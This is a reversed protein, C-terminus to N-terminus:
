VRVKNMEMQVGLIRQEIAGAAHVLEDLLRMFQFEGRQGDGVVARHVPDNIKVLGRALLADLGDDTALNIDRRAAPPVLFGAAASAINIMMETQQRLVRGAVFIEDLKRGGRM